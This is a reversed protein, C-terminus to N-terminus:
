VRGGQWIALTQWNAPFGMAQQQTPTAKNIHTALRQQWSSDPSIKHMMVLTILLYNYIERKSQMAATGDAKFMPQGRGDLMPEQQLYAKLKRINPLQLTMKRNWLRSHHACLNRIYTLEHLVGEMLEVTPMDFARAVRMKVTNDKTAKYWRSLAGLSLTEAMAWVPPMFPQNYQKRYHKVFTEKSAALERAVKAVDNLHQWPEKFLAADLYCHANGSALALANVWQSRLAVEIREIAEMVLLRLERDFAYLEVIEDFSTGPQFQHNRSTSQGPLEFPLWYASLRYYGIYALYHEASGLDAIHLNRQQLLQIQDPISRPPKTYTTATM